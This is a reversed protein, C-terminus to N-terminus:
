EEAVRLVEELTTVGELAKLFGDQVITVMGAEIATREIEPAAARELILRGIKESVQLVEFIGVRGQYGSDGCQECGKGKYLKVQDSKAPFLKGLTDHLQKVAPAPADYSTKCNTCITRVVRQAVVANMSSALLFTEAGLDLLRPLAGAANNTHITSFVLHGTLAAQIALETTEKDRIEGVMIINPDQRLFSRLGSAFTLGAAPNIQVQNVGPMAYEVPDELTVINVKPTNIKSLISYLTTTKGSGTPGSLLIIGHPRTIEIEMTKLANGRIGLEPLTPVGGTKRLLRMVVKEGHTTPLTSVRLDVEQEGLRFTFRGDQPLRREDIKLDSLIKIRTAISEHVKKPLILREQLIGDIRYRIRTKDELPEIHIDSARSKLAYELVTSVIKAVPAERIIDEVKTLDKITEQAEVTGPAQSEKLAESVETTLSQAYQTEIANSIDGSSSIYPEVKAGSKRELFEIVQLDLPDVMAVSLTNKSKEYQFPILVYRRAVAEPIMSLVDSDIQRGTLDIFPIGLLQSRAQMIDEASAYKHETVIDEVPRGTNIAELKVLSYQDATIKGSEKLVDEVGKESVNPM